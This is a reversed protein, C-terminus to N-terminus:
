LFVPIIVLTSIIVGILFLFLNHEEQINEKLQILLLLKAKKLLYLCKLRIVQKLLLLSLQVQQLIVKLQQKLKLVKFPVNVPLAVGLIEGEYSTVEVNDSPKMFNIEWELRDAPIEVQDYTENDMFVLMGGNDYLYQMKSKEVQAKKVKANSGFTMETTTGTRMNKMKVRINAAARATKNHSYDLCVYLNGDYEFTVGPRLETANIM